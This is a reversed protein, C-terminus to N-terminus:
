QLYALFASCQLSLHNLTLYRNNSQHTNKVPSPKVDNLTVNESAVNYIAIQIIHVTNKLTEIFLKLLRDAGM